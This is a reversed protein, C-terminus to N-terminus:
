LEGLIKQILNLMATFIPLSVYLIAASGLLQLMKGLAGNGADCCILSTIDCVLGIGAVKLLIGLMNEELNGLNELERLFQLVPKLYSLAIAAGMCCVALTLLVSIDREQKSLTLCLIVALLTGAIAKWFLEM